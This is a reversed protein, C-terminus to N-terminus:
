EDNKTLKFFQLSLSYIEEGGEHDSIEKAFDTRFKQILKKARDLSKVKFPMAASIGYREDKTQFELAQIAKNLIQAHFKKVAETPMGQDAIISEQNVVYGTKTKSILELRVLRDLSIQVENESLGLKKSFWLIPNKRNKSIKVLELLTFHHWQAITNFLDLQLDRTNHSMLIENLKSEAVVRDARRLAFKAKLSSHFVLEDTKSLSLKQVVRNASEAGLGRHGNMVHSLQAPTIGLDRAFSRLSYAPNVAKRDNLAETLIQGATKM